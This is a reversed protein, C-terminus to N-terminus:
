FVKEYVWKLFGLFFFFRIKFVKFFFVKKFVKKKSVM